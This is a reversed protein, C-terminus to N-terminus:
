LSYEPPPVYPFGPNVGTSQSLQSFINVAAPFSNGPVIPTEYFYLTIASGTSADNGAIRFAPASPMGSQYIHFGTVLNPEFTVFYDKMADRGITESTGFQVVTPSIVPGITFDGGFSASVAPIYSSARTNPLIIQTPVQVQQFVDMLSNVSFKLLSASAEVKRLFGRFMLTTGLFTGGQNPFDTFLAEHIWFPCEDFAGLLLAQKLSLNVPSQAETPYTPAINSLSVAGELVGYNVTNDYGWTVEVPHDEFGIGYHLKDHYLNEPLWTLGNNQAVGNWYTGVASTGPAATLQLRNLFIPFAADTFCYMGWNGYPNYNWFIMFQWSYLYATVLKRNALLYSQVTSTVDSGTPSYIKRM